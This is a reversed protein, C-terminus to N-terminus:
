AQRPGQHPGAPSPPECYARPGEAEAAMAALAAEATANMRERHALVEARRLRRRGDFIHFPLGGADVQGLVFAESVNLGSGCIPSPRFAQADASFTGSGPLIATVVGVM